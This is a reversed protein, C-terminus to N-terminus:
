YRWELIDLGLGRQDDMMSHESHNSYGLDGFDISKEFNHRHGFDHCYEFDLVCLSLL